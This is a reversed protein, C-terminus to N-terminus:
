FPMGDSDLDDNIHNEEPIDITQVFYSTTSEGKVKSIDNLKNSIDIAVYKNPVELEVTILPKSYTFRIIRLILNTQKM